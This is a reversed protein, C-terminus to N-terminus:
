RTSEKTPHLLFFILEGSAAAATAAVAEDDAQSSLESVEELEPHEAASSLFAGDLTAAVEDDFSFVASSATTALSTQFFSDDVPKDDTRSARDHVM